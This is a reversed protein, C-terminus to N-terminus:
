IMYLFNTDLFLNYVLQSFNKSMLESLWQNVLRGLNINSVKIITSVYMSHLKIQNLRCLM